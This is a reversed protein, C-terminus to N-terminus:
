TAWNVTQTQSIEILYGFLCQLLKLSYKYDQLAIYNPTLKNTFRPKLSVITIMIIILWAHM